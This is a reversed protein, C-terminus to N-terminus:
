QDDALLMMSGRVATWPKTGRVQLTRVRATDVPATVAYGFYANGTHFTDRAVWKLPVTAGNVQIEYAYDLDTGHASVESHRLELRIRHTGELPRLGSWSVAGPKVFWVAGHDRSFSDGELTQTAEGRDVPLRPATLAEKMETENALRITFRHRQPSAEVPAYREMAWPQGLGFAAIRPALDPDAGYFRLTLGYPEAPGEDTRDTLVLNRANTNVNEVVIGQGEGGMFALAPRGPHLPELLSQWMRGTPAIGNYLEAGLWSMERRWTYNATSPFPYHRRIVRDDLFATRGSVCWRRAGVIELEATEPGALRMEICHANGESEVTMVGADSTYEGPRATPSWPAAGARLVVDFDVGEFRLGGRDPVVRFTSASASVARPSPTSAELDVPPGVRILATEYPELTWPIPRAEYPVTRGSVADHVQVEPTLVVGEVVPLIGEVRKGSLNSLGIAAAGDHGKRLCSFVEPAFQFSTYDPTGHAFEPIARRALNMRRLAEFSGMEEEQYLMPMGEVMLCVGYLARALGMGYRYDVRGSEAVSDHNNLTRIIRAGRPYQGRENEFFDRLKRAMQAPQNRLGPLERSMLMWTAHGYGLPTLAFHEPENWNEPLLVPFKTGQSLGDRIAQLMELSGGLTSYSAHNTRPSKWHPGSGTAVDVRIGEFGYDRALIATAERMVAQWPPSAYDMGCGGWNRQPTGDRGCTWWPELAKAQVSQGGHPVMEGIIHIGKAHLRDTLHKLGDPGGLIPDIALVDLPDYLNWGGEKPNPPSKHTHVAQLWVASVGLAALYDVQRALPEFGGVDSFRSDIHGGASLEYLIASDLWDARAEPVRLGIAEYWRQAERRFAEQGGEGLWIGQAAVVAKDGPALRWAAAVRHSVQGEADRELAYADETGRYSVCVARGPASEGMWFYNPNWVEGVPKTPALRMEVNLLDQTTTSVNDYTVTRLWADPGLAPFPSFRDTVTWGDGSYVAVLSGDGERHTVPGGQGIVQRDDVTVLVAPGKGSELLRTREERATLWGDQLDWTVTHEGASMMCSVLVVAYAYVAM